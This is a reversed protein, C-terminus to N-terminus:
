SPMKGGIVALHTEHTVGHRKENVDTQRTIRLASLIRRNSPLWMVSRLGNLDVGQKVQKISVTRDNFIIVVSQTCSSAGFTRIAISRSEHAQAIWGLGRARLTHHDVVSTSCLANAAEKESSEKARSCSGSDSSWAAM